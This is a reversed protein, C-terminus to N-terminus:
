LAALVRGPAQTFLERLARARATVEQLVQQLGAGVPPAANEEPRPPLLDAIVAIADAATVLAPARERTVGGIAVLPIGAAQARAYATKLAPVGVAPDPNVKTTTQFVPGFAVYAPRTALAADLQEISHTSVGVGLGPAIRRVRDIPMDDQGVHVLDCGAMLALDPRDNAVLLVGARHCMPALERLLALTERASVNKARLQLAAPAVSIVAEAFALPDLGRVDLAGADVIAYLGRMKALVYGVGQRPTL